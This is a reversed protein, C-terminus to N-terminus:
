AREIIETKTIKFGNNLYMKIAGQNWDAVHLIIPSINKQQMRNIAFILTKKGYGKKQYEKSVILDDIENGYIAVSGIM